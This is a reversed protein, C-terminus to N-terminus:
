GGGGKAHVMICAAEARTIPEMPRFLRDARNEPDECDTILGEGYAAMVWKSYWPSDQGIPIDDFVQEAPDVPQYDKGMSMRTFFVTAEARTHTRFPCYSLPDTKCGATYGEEWLDTVWKASWHHLNLDAFVQETPGPPVHDAGKIGRVVFVASEARLMGDEPCYRRPQASCGAIYGEQYLREIYEYAWHDLPVDVFLPSGVFEYAGIDFNSGQPRSTGEFDHAPADQSIGADVAPSSSQLHWDDNTPNGDNSVAVFEPDIEDEQCDERCFNGEMIFNPNQAPLWMSGDFVINNRVVVNEFTSGHAWMAAQGDSNTAPQYFINNQITINRHGHDERISLLASGGSSNTNSWAAINNSVLCDECGLTLAMGSINYMINNTVSIHHSPGPDWGSIYLAHDHVLRHTPHTTGIDHWLNGDITIHHNMSGVFIGQGSPADVPNNGINHVYNGQIAIHHTGNSPDDFNRQVWIGGSNTNRIEFGEVRIYSVPAQFNIYSHCDRQGDLIARWKSEAKFTIWAEPTGSRRINLPYTKGGSGYVGDLVCVVDGPEVVDAAKQINQFARSKSRGDNRDDGTTAVYLTCDSSSQRNASGRLDNLQHSIPSSTYPIGGPGARNRDVDDDM